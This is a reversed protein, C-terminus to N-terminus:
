AGVDSNPLMDQPRLPASVDLTRYMEDLVAQLNPSAIMCIRELVPDDDDNLREVTLYCAYHKEDM